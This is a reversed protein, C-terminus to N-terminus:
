NKVNRKLQRAVNAPLRIAAKNAMITATFPLNAVTTTCGSANPTQGADGFDVHAFNVNNLTGTVETATLTTITVSGGTAMYDDAYMFMETGLTMLDADTTLTICTSCTGYDLEGGTLQVTFPTAPYNATTYNPPPGEFLEIWVLDSTQTAELAGVVQWGEQNGEVMTQTDAGYGAATQQITGLSAPATCTATPPADPTPNNSGPADVTVIPKKPDDGGCGVLAAISLSLFAVSKMM